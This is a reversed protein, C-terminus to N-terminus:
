ISHTPYKAAYDLKGGILYMMDIFYQNNRYGRARSKAAQFLSNYGEMIASTVNTNYWSVIGAWHRCISQAASVMAPLRSRKAWQCWAKLQDEGQAYADQFALKLRYARGTKLHLSPLTIAAIGEKQRETQDKENTVLSWSHGKLLIRKWLSDQQEERRTEQVANIVLQTVHFRDYTLAANPLHLKIGSTFAASMDCAVTTIANPDGGHQRLDHTASEICDGGKGPTAFLVRKNDLDVSVTIYDHGRRGATEDFAMRRVTSHDVMARAEEVLSRIMRWLRTDHIGFLRALHKVAMHPALFLALGEFYLTFGSGPRAWPVSAQLVGHQPCSIRPVRASIFAKHHFFDLHRYKKTSTDYVPCPEGCQPCKFRSGDKFDVTMDLHREESSFSCSTMQWPAPLELAQQLLDVDRMFLMKPLNRVKGIIGLGRVPLFTPSVAALPGM